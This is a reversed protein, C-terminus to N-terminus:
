KKEELNRLRQRKKEIEKDQLKVERDYYDSERQGRAERHRDRYYERLNQAEELNENARKIKGAQMEKKISQAAEDRDERPQPIVTTHKPERARERAKQQLQYRQIEAPSDPTYSETDILKVGKPPPRDSVIKTGNKDIWMYIDAAFSVTVSLLVAIICTFTKKM